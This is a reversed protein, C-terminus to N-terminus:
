GSMWEERPKVSGVPQIEGDQLVRLIKVQASLPMDGIEDLFITGGDAIQFKGIKGEKRAGTFAGPEYGFLESEMLHEPIAACNVTVFPKGSRESLQHISHAFLEKGTGSEGTILVSANGAAIRKVKNKLEIMQPSIAIIDHLSYIAGHSKKQRKRYQEVELLLSKIHSNMKMWEQTDRYLVIGIAGIVKGESWVPIRNAIMYNGRIYQLDAIEEKGTQVVIHMRTNEIVDTVHKGVAEERKVGLFRCYSENLYIIYGRDDVIVLCYHANEFVARIFQEQHPSHKLVIM